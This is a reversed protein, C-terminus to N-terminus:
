LLMASIWGARGLADRQVQDGGAARGVDLPPDVVPLVVGTRVDLRDRNAARGAELLVPEEEARQGAERDSVERRECRVLDAAHLVSDKGRLCQREAARQM